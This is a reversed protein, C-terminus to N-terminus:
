VPLSALWAVALAASALALLPFPTRRLRPLLSVGALSLLMAAWAFPLLAGVRLLTFALVVTLATCAGLSAVMLARTRSEGLLVPLNRVGAQRDGALDPLANACHL